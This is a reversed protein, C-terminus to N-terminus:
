LLQCGTTMKDLLLWPRPVQLCLPSGSTALHHSGDEEVQELQCVECDLFQLHCQEVGSRVSCIGLDPETM